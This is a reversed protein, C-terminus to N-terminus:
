CGCTSFIHWACKGEKGKEEEVLTFDRWFSVYQEISFYYHSFLMSVSINNIVRIEWLRLALCRLIAGIFALIWEPYNRSAIAVKDGKVIGLQKILFSALRASIALSESFTYREDQLPRSVRAHPDAWRCLKSYKLPQHEWQKYSFKWKRSNTTHLIVGPTCMCHM